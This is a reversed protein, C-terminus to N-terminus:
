RHLAALLIALVSNAGYQQYDDILYNIALRAIENESTRIGDQQYTFVIAQIAKKEDRSFRHTAAEKGPTRVARRITEIRADAVTPGRDRPTTTDHDRSVTTDPDRPTPTDGKDAKQFFVSGRKLENEIRRTDLKKKM